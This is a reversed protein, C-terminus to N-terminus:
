LGRKRADESLARAMEDPGLRRELGDFRRDLQVSQRYVADQLGEVMSELANLRERLEALEAKPGRAASDRATWSAVIARVRAALDHFAVAM